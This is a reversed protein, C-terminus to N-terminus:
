TSAGEPDPLGIHVVSTTGGVVHLARGPPYDARNLRPPFRTRFTDDGSEPALALGTRSARLANLVNQSSQLTPADGDGVVLHGDRVCRQVLELVPSSPTYAAAASLEAINELVVVARSDDLGELLKRANDDVDPGCSTTDWRGLGALESRASNSLLHVAVDPNWRRVAAVVAHVATTRGSKPPGNILFAGAPEFTHPALTESALGLVPLGDVSAPLSSLPFREALREIVPAAPIGRDRMTRAIARIRQAQAAVDVHEGVNAIQIENGRLVARGRPSSPGVVGAPEGILSYDSDDALRLAVRTQIAAALVSPVAPPRDASLVLHVGVQRGESAIAVLVDFWRNRETGEYVKRFASVGDLLLLIRPDAAVGAKQRYETITGAEAKAYRVAREDVVERLRGLLRAVREHDNGAVVSGVHPLEELVALGRGSFDLGYVQCNSAGAAVAVVRLLTSKGTGGTGFVALNGDVDPTFTVQPQVQNEPDDRVGFVIEEDRPAPMTTLDYVPRLPPLWPRHPTQMRARGFAMRVAHVMRTIDTPGLDAVSPAEARVQWVASRGFSLEEVFVEPPPAVEATWGGAYGAQFPVLRGPGTKSVARGPLAPDFFAAEPSGLVDVSDAEDATRLALRLNTNARLNDKIVGAPRQTALILHVGLSRGRQAVNVVGDVFEPLEKVLAAFEDVVIVLSPPAAAAHRRELEALDKVQYRAFLRERNKLEASLSTLARHVLHPTLDTVQGVVHPLSEFGQFASGGKYDVLLFTVRQPSHAVALSLIWSQLLESKGSGTTGGVLAHPGDARLDLAHAGTASMGVVARLTGSERSPQRPACPGQVISRNEQWRELVVDAAPTLAPEAVNLLSISRPLDSADDVKAGTDVLPALLRALETASAADLLDVAVDDVRVGDHAFGVHGSGDAHEVSLYTRCAAPLLTVDVALWLVHVGHRWGVEALEVLRSREGATDDEVIVFVSPGPAEGATRSEVLAELESLLAAASSTDAALHRTGLPSHPSTTHPLWKVWDWDATTQASAFGTFVLEAPSHLVALQAVLARAAALATPRSGAVGVGGHEAPRAVVPVGDVFAFPEAATVLETWMERAFGRPDPLTITNRAPLRGTGLRIEAFGRGGPRRAWLLQGGQAAAATCDAFSPHEESRAAVEARNADRAAEALEAVETRFVATAKKFASRGALMSEIAYGIIMLPSIAVFALSLVSKTILYLVAGMLVPAILPVIPFRERQPRRPPEPAIQEVGEYCRDLRPSRVFAVAAEEAGPTTHLVRVQLQTDGVRVRDGPRLVSRSVAAGGLQVGNASGLDTIQAVDSITLRAHQRSVLPDTLRVECGPERGIVATGRHLPFKRGSDPGEVVEVVAADGSPRDVYREGARALAVVAGSRLGSGGVQLHPDLLRHERGAISLTVGGQVQHGGLPDARLLHTALDGVTTAADVTAMLDVSVGGSRALTFKIKM